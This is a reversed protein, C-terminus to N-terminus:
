EGEMSITGLALTTSDLNIVHQNCFVFGCGAIYVVYAQPRLTLGRYGTLAPHSLHPLPTHSSPHPAYGHDEPGMLYLYMDSPAYHMKLFVQIM